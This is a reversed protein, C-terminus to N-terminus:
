FSHERVFMWIYDSLFALQLPDSVGSVESEVGSAPRHFYKVASGSTNTLGRTFAILSKRGTCGGGEYLDIGYIFPSNSGSGPLLKASTNNHGGGGAMTICSSQIVAANNEVRIVGDFASYAPITIRFDSTTVTPGPRGGSNDCVNWPGTGTLMSMTGGSPTCGVLLITRPQNNVGSDTSATQFLNYNGCNARSFSLNVQANIGGLVITGGDACYVDGSELGSAYGVAMFRYHGNPLTWSTPSADNNFKIAGRRSPDDVNVAYVMIGANLAALADMPSPARQLSVTTTGSELRSFKESLKGCAASLLGVLVFLFPLIKKM